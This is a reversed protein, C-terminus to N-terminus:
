KKGICHFTRAPNQNMTKFNFQEFWQIDFNNLLEMVGQRTMHRVILNENTTYVGWTGFTQFGKSYKEKYREDDCILFDSLYLVGNKKPVRWIEDM